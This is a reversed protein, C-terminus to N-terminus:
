LVEVLADLAYPGFDGFPTNGTRFTVTLNANDEVVEWVEKWMPGCGTMVKVKMGPKVDVALVNM